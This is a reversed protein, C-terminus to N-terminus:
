PSAVLLIHWIRLGPVRRRWRSPRCINGGDAMRTDEPGEIPINVRSYRGGNRNNPFAGEMDQTTAFYPSGTRTTQASTQECYAFRATDSADTDGKHQEWM